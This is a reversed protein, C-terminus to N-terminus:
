PAVERAAELARLAERPYVRGDQDDPAYAGVDILSVFEATWSPLVVSRGTSLPHVSCELVTVDHGTHSEVFRAIPCAISFARWGVAKEPHSRREALLWSRFEDPDRLSDEVMLDIEARRDPGLATTMM